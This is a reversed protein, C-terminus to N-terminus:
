YPLHMMQADGMGHFSARLFHRRSNRSCQRHFGCSTFSFPLLSWLLISANGTTKCKCRASTLYRGRYYRLFTTILLQSSDLNVPHQVSLSCSVFLSCLVPSPFKRISFRSVTQLCSSLCSYHPFFEVAECFLCMAHSSSCYILRAANLRTYLGGVRVGCCIASLFRCRNRLSDSLLSQWM